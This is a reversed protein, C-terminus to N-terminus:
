PFYASVSIKLDIKGSNRANQLNKVGYFAIFGYFDVCVNLIHVCILKTEVRFRSILLKESKGM